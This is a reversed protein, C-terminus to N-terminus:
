SCGRGFTKYGVQYLSVLSNHARQASAQWPTGVYVIVLGALQAGSRSSTLTFTLTGCGSLVLLSTSADVM